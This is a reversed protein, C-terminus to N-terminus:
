SFSLLFNFQQGRVLLQSLLCDERSLMIQIGVGVIECFKDFLKVEFVRNM